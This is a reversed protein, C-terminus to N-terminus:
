APNKNLMKPTQFHGFQERRLQDILRGEPLVVDDYSLAEDKAINRKLTCGEAVGLPLLNEEVVVDANECVGYTMYGGISDIKDGAKLGKKAMAIVEVMPRGAPTITADDFLYARAVTNLVEFHCLHFPTYFCYFPGEGQKYLKLYHQQRPDDCRGIM